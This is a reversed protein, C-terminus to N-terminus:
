DVGVSCGDDNQGAKVVTVVVIVMREVYKAVLM